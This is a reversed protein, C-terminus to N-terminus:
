ATKESESYVADTNLIIDVSDNNIARNSSFNFLFYFVGVVIGVIVFGIVFWQRLGTNNAHLSLNNKKFASKTKPNWNTVKPSFDTYDSHPLSEKTINVEHLHADWSADRYVNQEYELSPDPSSTISKEYPTDNWQHQSKKIAADERIKQGNSISILNEPTPQTKILPTQIRKNTLTEDSSINISCLVKGINFKIPPKCTIMQNILQHHNMEIGNRGLIQLKVHDGERIIILHERSITKDDICIDQGLKRGISIPMKNKLYFREDSKKNLFFWMDDEILQNSNKHGSFVTEDDDYIHDPDSNM